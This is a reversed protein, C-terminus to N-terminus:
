LAPLDWGLQKLVARLTVVEQRAKALAVLFAQADGRTAAEAARAYGELALLLHPHAKGVEAPVKMERGARVRALALQHIVQALEKDGLRRRLAEAEKEGTAILVAARTLYSGAFANTALALAGFVLAGAFLRRGWVREVRARQQAGGRAAGSM